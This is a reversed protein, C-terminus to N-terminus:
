LRTYLNNKVKFKLLHCIDIIITLIKGMVFKVAKIKKLIKLMCKTCNRIYCQTYVKLKVLNESTKFVNM